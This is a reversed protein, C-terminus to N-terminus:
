MSGQLDTLVDRVENIEGPEGKNEAAILTEALLGIDEPRALHTVENRLQHVEGFLEDIQSSREKSSNVQKCMSSVDSRVDSIGAMVMKIQSASEHLESSM